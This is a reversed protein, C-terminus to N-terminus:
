SFEVFSVSDFTGLSVFICVSVRLAYEDNMM